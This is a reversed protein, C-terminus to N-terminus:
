QAAAIWDTCRQQLAHEVARGVAPLPQGADITVYRELTAARQHYVHRVRAFFDAAEREFRDLKRQDIRTLAIQWELDLFLTLDPQLDSQVLQELQAIVGSDLARGGGQYAYTADTFRDCLVWIGSTLAPEICRRLHQARAAFILLLEALPEVAEDRVALLLERVSEALPTGGPERTVLVQVGQRELWRQATVLNTSKGVGEM